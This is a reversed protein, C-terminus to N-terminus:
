VLHVRTLELVSFLHITAVHGIIPVNQSARATNTGSFNEAYELSPGSGCVTSLRTMFRSPWGSTTVIVPCMQLWRMVQRGWTGSILLEMGFMFRISPICIEGSGAQDGPRDEMTTDAALDACWGNV